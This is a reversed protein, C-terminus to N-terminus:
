LRNLLYETCILYIFLVIFFICIHEVVVCDSPVYSLNRYGHKKEFGTLYIYIYIQYIYIYSIYIYIM